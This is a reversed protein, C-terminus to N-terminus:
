ISCAYDIWDWGDVKAHFTEDDHKEGGIAFAQMKAGIIQLLIGQKLVLTEREQLNTDESRPFRISSRESAHHMYSFPALASDFKDDSVAGAVVCFHRQGEARQTQERLIINCRRMEQLFCIIDGREANKCAGVHGRDSVYM